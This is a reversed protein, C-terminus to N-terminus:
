NQKCKLRTFGYPLKGAQVGLTVPLNDYEIASRLEAIAQEVARKPGDLVLTKTM